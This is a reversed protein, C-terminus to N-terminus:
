EWAPQIVPMGEGNPYAREDEEYTEMCHKIHLRCRNAIAQWYRYEAKSIHAFMSQQLYHYSEKHDNPVKRWWEVPIPQILVSLSPSMRITEAPAINSDKGHISAIINPHLCLQFNHNSGNHETSNRSTYFISFPHNCTACIFGFRGVYGCVSCNGLRQELIENDMDVDPIPFVLNKHLATDFGPDM